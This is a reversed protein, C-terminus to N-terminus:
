AVNDSQRVLYLKFLTQSNRFVQRYNYNLSSDVPVFVLCPFCVYVVFFVFYSFDYMCLLLLLHAVATDSHRGSCPTQHSALHCLVAHDDKRTGVSIMEPQQPFKCQLTM